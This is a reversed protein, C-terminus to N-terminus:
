AEVPARSHRAAARSRHWGYPARHKIFRNVMFRQFSQRITLGRSADSAPERATTAASCAACTRGCTASCISRSMARGREVASRRRDSLTPASAPASRAGRGVIRCVIPSVAGRGRRDHFLSRFAPEARGRGAARCAVRSRTPRAPPIRRPAARRRLHRPTPPSRTPAVGPMVNARAVQYRRDLEAYVGSVSRANGQRDYFISKNARAAAPFMGAANAQPRERPPMSSSRRRRRHRLFAGHLARRRDANRGIRQSSCPPTASRSPAPWRRM